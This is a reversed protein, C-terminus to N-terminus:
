QRSSPNLSVRPPFVTVVSYEFIMASPKIVKKFVQVAGFGDWNLRIRVQWEVKGVQQVAPVNEAAALAKQAALDSANKRTSTGSV